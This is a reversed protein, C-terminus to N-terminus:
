RRGVGAYKIQEECETNYSVSQDCDYAFQTSVAAARIVCPRWDHKDSRAGSAPSIGGRTTAVSKGIDDAVRVRALARSVRM